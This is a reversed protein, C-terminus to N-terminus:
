GPGAPRHRSPGVIGSGTEHSIWSCGSAFRLPISGPLTVGFRDKCSYPLLCAEVGSRCPREPLSLRPNTIAKTEGGNAASDPQARTFRYAEEMEMHVM